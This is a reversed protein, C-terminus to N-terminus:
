WKHAVDVVVRNDIKMVRFPLQARVGVGVTTRGHQSGAYKASKFTPYGALNVGPLPQNVSASYTVSNTNFDYPWADVSVKLKAGGTLSILQGSGDAYVNSVYRVDYGAGPNSVDVVMRDYCDHSGTRVNNFTDSTSTDAATKATSGWTIGCYPAANAPQAAYLGLALSSAVIALALIKKM